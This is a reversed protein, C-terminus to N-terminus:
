DKEKSPKRRLKRLVKKAPIAWWFLETHKLFGACGALPLALCHMHLHNVSTFPPRHFSFQFMMEEADRRLMQEGVVLM